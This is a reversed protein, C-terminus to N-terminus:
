LGFELRNGAYDRAFFRKPFEGAKGQGANDQGLEDCYVPAGEGGSEYRQWIRKQLKELKEESPIKFCLHRPSDYQAKAEAQTLYHQSTIHIQQSGRGDVDFWALHAKASTPVDAQKLGLTSNYFSVALHLTQPPVLLNVHHLGSIM